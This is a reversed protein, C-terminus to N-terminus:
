VELNLAILNAMGESDKIKVFGRKTEVFNKTVLEKMIRAVVERTTGLNDAMEQQTMQLVGNSAARILILNALRHELRCFHVQELEGMLRFVLTSLSNVTLEQISPEIAFLKKYIPGPIVAVETKVETSVWAPYLFNNFLCNLAFVCTEGPNIVYLTAENGNPSISYVRLRGNVVIYAGSVESGKHLLPTNHPFERTIMGNELVEKGNKTLNFFSLKQALSSM